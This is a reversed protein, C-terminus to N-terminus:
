VWNIAVDGDLITNERNKKRFLKSIVSNEKSEKLSKAKIANDLFDTVKVLDEKSLKINGIKAEFTSPNFVIDLEGKEDSIRLIDEIIM